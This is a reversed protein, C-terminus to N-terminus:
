NLVAHRLVVIGIKVPEVAPPIGGLRISGFRFLMGLVRVATGHTDM